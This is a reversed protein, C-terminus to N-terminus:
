KAGKLRKVFHAIAEPHAAWHLHVYSALVNGQQFGECAVQGQRNYRLAYVCDWDSPAQNELLATSYHFEHGRIRQGPGGWLSDAQLTVEVYGLRQFRKSMRTWFPLLGVMATRQRNTNEVGQSLYLLGGCEAYIPKKLRQFDRISALMSANGSLELSAEEPYGGGFYLGDLDTPLLPDSVPSFEVIQCGARELSELNDPYYFHFAKDRALGLRVPNGSVSHTPGVNQERAPNRRGGPDALSLIADLSLSAQTGKALDNLLEQNDFRCSATVLGLPRSKLPPLSNHLLAGLLAPQGASQLAEALMRAHKKSGCHNAVVGAIQIGPEFTTFGHVLAAVSRAVGRADCVLLIPVDLLSAIHAASGQNNTTEPGDFLGMAGEIIVLDADRSKQEFLKKLYSAPSMWPDLNYCPRGTAQELYTPDLFDPGCKFAQVSLGRQAFSRALGLTVSTKGAGSHTGAVM